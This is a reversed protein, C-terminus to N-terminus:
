EVKIAAVPCMLAAQEVRARADEGPNENLLVVADDDDRIDFIDGASILCEGHLECREYDVTIKM